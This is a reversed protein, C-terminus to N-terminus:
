LRGHPYLFARADAVRADVTECDLRDLFAIAHRAASRASPNSSSRQRGLTDRLERRERPSLTRLEAGTWMKTRTM